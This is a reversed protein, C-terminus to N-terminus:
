LLVKAKVLTENLGEQGNGSCVKITSSEPDLVEIYAYKCIAPLITITITDQTPVITHNNLRSNIDVMQSPMFPQGPEFMVFSYDSPQKQLEVSLKAGKLAIDKLRQFVIQHHAPPCAGVLPSECGIAFSEAIETVKTWFEQRRSIM